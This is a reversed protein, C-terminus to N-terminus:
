ALVSAVFGGPYFAMVAFMDKAPLLAFSCVGSVVGGRQSPASDFRVVLWGVLWGVLTVHHSHGSGDMWGVM